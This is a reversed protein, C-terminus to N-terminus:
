INVSLFVCQPQSGKQSPLQESREQQWLEIQHMVVIQSLSNKM